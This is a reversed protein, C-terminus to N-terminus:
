FPLTPTCIEVGAPGGAFPTPPVAVAVGFIVIVAWTWLVLATALAVTESSEPMRTEKVWGVQVMPVFSVKEKAGKTVTDPAGAGVGAVGITAHLRVPTPVM